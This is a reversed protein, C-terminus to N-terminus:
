PQPSYPPLYYMPDLYANIAAIPQKLIKGPCSISPVTAVNVASAVYLSVHLHPGTVRGTGGTYGVVEGRRVKQRESVRILSLHGYTSSLGNNYEIFIWKGFSVGPCATDTDGIGEVVGDAMAKVPLPTRARFDTGSHGSAYTRHPGTKAGFEQTVFIRDLPWSLVGAGPLKSPDLIFQLQSEYDRLEKEFAEKKAQQSKLLTQYNAESNKTQTLLKNKEATNQEVIKKQDALQSKLAVLENRAQVTEARTDELEGKVQKLEIIKDRVRERVTVINDINNWIDTFDNESLITEAVSALDSDNMERIGLAIADQAGTISEEKTNIQSGLGQIKLNTKDIKNQTISIDANLKKKTIDLQKISSSLSNKEVGLEGLEQQYIKIEKELREIELNKEEIKNNLEKATQAEGYVPLFVLMALALSFFIFNFQKKYARLHKM